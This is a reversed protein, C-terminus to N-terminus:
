PVQTFTYTQFVELQKPVKELYQAMRLHKTTYEETTQSTILMSDSHITLKKVMLDKAMRLGALLAEYEVENNSSKFGLITAQKLMSDDPTVLVVGVGSGKYNSVDDLHLHWFDRNPSCALSLHARSSQPM